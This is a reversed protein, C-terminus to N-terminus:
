VLRMASSRPAVVSDLGGRPAAVPGVIESVNWVRGRGNQIRRQNVPAEMGWGLRALRGLGSAEEKTERSYMQCSTRKATRESSFAGANVTTAISTIATPMPAFVATKETM